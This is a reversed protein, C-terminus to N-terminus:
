ISAYSRELVMAIEQAAQEGAYIAGELCGSWDKALESSAWLIRNVRPLASDELIEHPANPSLYSAQGCSIFPDNTWDHEKYQLPTLAEKGFVHAWTQLVANKREEQDKSMWKSAASATLMGSLVGLSSNLPSNDNTLMPIDTLSIGNGSWGQQRWFPKEYVAQIKLTQGVVQFADFIQAYRPPLPPDFALTKVRNPPICVVVAQAHFQQDATQVQVGEQNQIITKVAQRYHIREGLSESLCHALAQSGGEIRSAQAGGLTWTPLGYNRKFLWLMQLLSVEEPEVSFGQNIMFRFLQKADPSQLSQNLWEQFTISNWHQASSSRVHRTMKELLNLAANFEDPIHFSDLPLFNHRDNKLFHQGENDTEYTQIRFENLLAHIKKQGKCIYQGGMEVPHSDTLSYDLARGGPRHSAELLLVNWHKQALAYACTLGAYGAGIVIVDM